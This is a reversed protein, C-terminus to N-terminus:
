ALSATTSSCEELLRQLYEALSRISFAKGFTITSKLRNSLLDKLFLSLEQDMQAVNRREEEVYDVKEVMEPHEAKEVNDIKTKVPPTPKLFSEPHRMGMEIRIIPLTEELIKWERYDDGIYSTVIIKSRELKELIPYPNIQQKLMQRLENLGFTGEKGVMTKLLIVADNGYKKKVESLSLRIKEWSGNLHLVGNEFSYYRGQFVTWRRSALRESANRIEKDSTKLSIESSAEDEDMEWCSIFEQFYPINLAKGLEFLDPTSFLRRLLLKREVIKDEESMLSM